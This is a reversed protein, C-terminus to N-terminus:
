RDLVYDRENEGPLMKIKPVDRILKWDRAIHLVRRLTRLSTISPSRRSRM